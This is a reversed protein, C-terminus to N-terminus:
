VPAPTVRSWNVACCWATKSAAERSIKASSSFAASANATSAVQLSPEAASPALSSCSPRLFVLAASKAVPTVPNSAPNYAPRCAM